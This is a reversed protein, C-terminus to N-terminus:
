DHHKGGIRISVPDTEVGLLERERKTRAAFKLEVELMAFLKDAITALEWSYFEVGDYSAVPPEKEMELVGDKNIRAEENVSGNWDIGCLEMLAAAAKRKREKRDISANIADNSKQLKARFLAGETMYDDEGMLWQIRYNRLPFAKIIKLATAETLPKNDTLINSLHKQSVGTLRHLDAAKLPRGKDTLNDNMIKKLREISESM